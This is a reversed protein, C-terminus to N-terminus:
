ILESETKAFVQLLRDNEEPSGVTIRVCDPLDHGFYRLLVNDDRCQELLADVASHQVLFFNAASPWVKRVVRFQRLAKMVRDREDVIKEISADVEAMREQQLAELVCEVVPTAFAYPAQIADLLEIIDTPAVVAGCRAGAFALAKSLTRLVVVNSYETLLEIASHEESFEIYAEDIVIVSREGRQELIKLLDTRELLTGTPNNPSCIFILRTSDDCASVLADVDITFGSEASAQVERVEAGQVKAYHRYMSFTPATTVINDIGPRCFARILLDIAESTGRTALLQAASCGFRSALAAHLAVPRVEPYRNLPRQFHDSSNPWPSENANLRTTDSVQAAASYPKLARIEPRALRTISM